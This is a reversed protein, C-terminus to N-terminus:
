DDVSVRGSLWHATVRHQHGGAGLVITGGTSSGDPFFRIRNSLGGPQFALSFDRPVAHRKGGPAVYSGTGPDFTVQSEDGSFIAAQRAANLDQALARAAAKGELGPRAASVLTPAAVILLAIVALVVLLEVLTFGSDGTRSPRIAM